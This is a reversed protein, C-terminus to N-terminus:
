VQFTRTRSASRKSKSLRGARWSRCEWPLELADALRMGGRDNRIAFGQNHCSGSFVLHGREPCNEGLAAGAAAFAFDESRRQKTTQRRHVLAARHAAESKLALLAIEKSGHVNTVTEREGHHSGEAGEQPSRGVQRIALYNKPSEQQEQRKYRRQRRKGTHQPDVEVLGDIGLSGTSPDTPVLGQPDWEPVLICAGETYWRM